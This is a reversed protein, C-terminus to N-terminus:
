PILQRPEAAGPLQTFGPFTVAGTAFFQLPVLFVHEKRTSTVRMPSGAGPQPLSIGILQRHPSSSLDVPQM